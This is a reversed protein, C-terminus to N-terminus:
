RASTGSFLLTPGITMTRSCFFTPPSLPRFFTILSCHFTIVAAAWFYHFVPFFAYSKSLFFFAQHLYCCNNSSFHCIIIFCPNESQSNFSILSFNMPTVLLTVFITTFTKNAKTFFVINHTFILAM